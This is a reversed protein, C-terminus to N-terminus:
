GIYAEGASLTATLIETARGEALLGAAELMRIGNNLDTDNLDIYQATDIRKLARRLTAAPVTAGISALDIGIAEADTFRNIFALKTLRTYAVATVEAPPYFNTGEYTWGINEDGVQELLLHEPYMDHMGQLQSPNIGTCIDVVGNLVGIIVM